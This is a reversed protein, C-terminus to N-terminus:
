QEVGFRAVSRDADGGPHAEMRFHVSGSNIKGALVDEVEVKLVYEGPSLTRPIALPGITLYFDSRRQRALDEINDDRATWIEQGARDLLSQRVSLLTRYLGSDTKESRFNEVEIYVLVLNKRGAPFHPPEFPEYRGFGEIATCLEVTKVALDAEARVLDRLSEIADLQRNAWEAPDRGASSRAIMLTQIHARIVAQVDADTGDIPALASEDQGQVLYLLRLRFQEELNNPDETVRQELEAIRSRLTDVPERPAVNPQPTESVEPQEPPAEEPPASAIEIHGLVPPKAPRDEEVPTETPATQDVDSEVASAAQAADTSTNGTRPPAADVASDSQVDTDASAVQTPPPHDMDERIVDLDGDHPKEDGAQTRRAAPDPEIRVTELPLEPGERDRRGVWDPAESADIPTPEAETTQADTDTAPADSTADPPRRAERSRQLKTNFDNAQYSSDYRGNMNQVYRRVRAEVEGPKKDNEAANEADASATQAPEPQEAAAQDDASRNPTESRNWAFWNQQHSPQQCGALLAMSSVIPLWFSMPVLRTMTM